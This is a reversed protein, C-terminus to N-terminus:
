AHNNSRLGLDIITSVRRTTDNLNKVQRHAIIKNGLLDVIWVVRDLWARHAELGCATSGWVTALNAAWHTNAVLSLSCYGSKSCSNM